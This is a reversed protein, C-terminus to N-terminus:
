HLAHIAVGAPLKQPLYITGMHVRAHATLSVTVTPTRLLLHTHSAPHLGRATRYADAYPGLLGMVDPAFRSHWVVAFVKGDAGAFERVDGRQRLLLQQGAVQQARVDASKAVLVDDLAAHAPLAAGVGLILIAARVWTVLSWTSNQMRMRTM